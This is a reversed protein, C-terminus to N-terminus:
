KLRTIPVMHRTDHKYAFFCVLFYIIIFISSFRAARYLCHSIFLVCTYYPLLKGSLQEVEVNFLAYLRFYFMKRNYDVGRVVLMLIVIKPVIVLCVCM